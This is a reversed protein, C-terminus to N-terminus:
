NHITMVVHLTIAFPNNNWWFEKKAKCFGKETILTPEIESGQILWESLHQVGPDKLTVELEHYETFDTVQALGQAM